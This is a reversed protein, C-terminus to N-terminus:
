VLLVDQEHESKTMKTLAHLLRGEFRRRWRWRHYPAIPPWRSSAITKYDVIRMTYGSDGQVFWISEPAICHNIIGFTKTDSILRKVQGAIDSPEADVPLKAAKRVHNLSFMPRNQPNINEVLLGPGLNTEVIGGVWSMYPLSKPTAAVVERYGVLERDNAGLHASRKWFPLLRRYTKAPAWEIKICRDTREPHAYAARLSGKRLLLSEDLVIM